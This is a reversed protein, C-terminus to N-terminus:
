ETWRTMPSHQYGIRIAQAYLPTGLALTLPTTYLQWGTSDAALTWAISAGETPSSLQVRLSDTGSPTATFTVEGTV